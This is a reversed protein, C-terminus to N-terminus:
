WLVDDVEHAVVSLFRSPGLWHSSSSVFQIDEEFVRGFVDAIVSLCLLDVVVESGVIIFRPHELIDDCHIEGLLDRPLGLAPSQDDIYDCRDHEEGKVDEM